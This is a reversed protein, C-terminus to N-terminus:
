KAPEVAKAPATAGASPTASFELNVMADKAVKPALVDLTKQALKGFAERPRVDHEALGIGLPKATKVALGVPKDGEYKFTVELDVSKPTQRQHLLFDGSATVTVKREPGTLKSVDKEGTTTISKISFQAKENKARVDDPTDKSIELWTRAHENQLDSKKEEGFKGDDGAVAQFLEIGAIDVTILGTTKTIDSPDVRLDGSATGSVHGRIKEQPAEMMFEIKSSAKDIAFTAAAPAKAVPAKLETAAPALERKEEQCATTGLGAAALMLIPLVTRTWIIKV